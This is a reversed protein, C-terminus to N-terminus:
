NSANDSVVTDPLGNRAFINRLCDITESVSTSSVIECEIYKTFSDIVVLFVRSDYFFDDIHLRSWKKNTDPWKLTINQPPKARNNIYM